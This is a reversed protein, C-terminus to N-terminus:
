MMGWDDDDEPPPLDVVGESGSVSEEIWKVRDTGDAYELGIGRIYLSVPSGDAWRSFLDLLDGHATSPPVSM